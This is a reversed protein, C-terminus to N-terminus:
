QERRRKNKKPWFNMFLDFGIACLVFLGAIELGRLWILGWDLM